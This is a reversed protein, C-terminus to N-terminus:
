RPCNTAFEVIAHVAQGASVAPLKWEAVADLAAQKLLAHGSVIRANEPSGDPRGEFAVSVDGEIRVALALPPYKPAIFNLPAVPFSSKLRVSPQPNDNTQTQKYLVSLKEADKAGPFLADYEEAEIGRLISVDQPRPLPQPPGVSVQQFLPKEMVGPGSAGDLRELLRMTWTTNEPTRAAPNFMDRDLIDSRILRNQGGCKAQLVVKSGSFVQCHKCRKLERKLEKESIQCPNKAGLLEAVSESLDVSSTEMKARRFCTDAAPTFIFRAVTAGKEAPRVVFLSYYNFPPGFDFFTYVGLAFQIPPQPSTPTKQAATSIGFFLISLLALNNRMLKSESRSPRSSVVSVYRSVSQV